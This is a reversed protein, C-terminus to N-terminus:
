SGAKAKGVPHKAVAEAKAESVKSIDTVTAEPTPEVAGIVVDLAEIQNDLKARRAALEARKTKAENVVKDHKAKAKARAAELDAELKAVREEATLMKRKVTKDSM